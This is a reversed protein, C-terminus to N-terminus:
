RVGRIRLIAQGSDTYVVIDVIKATKLDAEYVEGISLPYPTTSATESNIIVWCESPGSNVISVSFWPKNMPPRITQSTPTARVRRIPELIGEPIMSDIKANLVGMKEILRQLLIVQAVDTPVKSKNDDSV